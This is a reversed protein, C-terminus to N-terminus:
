PLAWRCSRIQPHLRASRSFRQSEGDSSCAITFIPLLQTCSYQLHVCHLSYTLHYTRQMMLSRLINKHMSLISSACFRKQNAKGREAQRRAQAVFVPFFPRAQHRNPAVAVRAFIGDHRSVVAVSKRRPWKREQQWSKRGERGNRRRWRCRVICIVHLM